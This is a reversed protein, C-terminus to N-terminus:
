LIVEEDSSSAGKFALKTKGKQRSSATQGIPTTFAKLVRTRGTDSDYEFQVISQWKFKM